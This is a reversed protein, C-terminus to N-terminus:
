PEHSAKLPPILLLHSVHKPGLELYQCRWTGGHKACLELLGYVRFGLGYVRLNELGSKSGWMFRWTKMYGKQLSAERASAASCCWGGSNAGPRLDSLTTFRLTCFKPKPNLSHLIVVTCVLLPSDTSSFSVSCSIFASNFYNTKRPTQLTSARM